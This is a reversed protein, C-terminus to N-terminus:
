IKGRLAIGSEYSVFLRWDFAFRLPIWALLWPL